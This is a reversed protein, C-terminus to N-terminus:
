NRSPAAVVRRGKRGVERKMDSDWARVSGCCEVGGLEFCALEPGVRSVLSLVSVGVLRYCHKSPFGSCHVHIQLPHVLICLRFFSRSSAHNTDVNFCKHSCTTTNGAATDCEHGPTPFQTLPGEFVHRSTFRRDKRPAFKLIQWM